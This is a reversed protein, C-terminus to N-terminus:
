NWYSWAQSSCSVYQYMLIPNKNILACAVDVEALNSMVLQIKDASYAGGQTKSKSDSKKKPLYRHLGSPHMQGCLKSLRKNM